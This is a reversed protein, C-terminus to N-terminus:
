SVDFRDFRFVVQQCVNKDIKDRNSLLIQNKNIVDTFFNFSFKRPTLKLNKALYEM